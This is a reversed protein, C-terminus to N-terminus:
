LSGNSRHRDNNPVMTYDIVMAQLFLDRNNAYAIGGQPLWGAVCLANIKKILETSDRDEIVIYNM